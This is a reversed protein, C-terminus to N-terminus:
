FHEGENFRIVINRIEIEAFEHLEGHRSYNTFEICIPQEELQKIFTLIKFWQIPNFKSKYITNDYEKTTAFGAYSTREGTFVIESRDNENIVDFQYCKNLLALRIEKQLTLSSMIIKM